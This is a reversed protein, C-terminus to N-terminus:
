ATIGEARKRDKEMAELIINRLWKGPSRGTSDIFQDFAEREATRFPIDIKLRAERSPPNPQRAM